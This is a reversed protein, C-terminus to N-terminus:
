KCRSGALMACVAETQSLCSPGQRVMGLVALHEFVRSCEQVYLPIGRLLHAKAVFLKGPRQGTAKYLNCSSPSAGNFRNAGDEAVPWHSRLFGQKNLVNANSDAELGRAISNIPALLLLSCKEM